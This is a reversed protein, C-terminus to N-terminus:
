VHARGIENRKSEVLKIKESLAAVEKLINVLGTINGQSSNETGRALLVYGYGYTTPTIGEAFVFERRALDGWSVGRILGTVKEIAAEAKVRDDEPMVSFVLTTIDRDIGSNKLADIVEAWRQEIWAREPNEAAHIFFWANDPVYQGLTFRPPLQGAFTLSPALWVALTAIRWRLARRDM